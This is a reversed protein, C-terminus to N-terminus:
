GPPVGVAQTPGVGRISIDLKYSNDKKNVVIAPFSTLVKGQSPCVAGVDEAAPHPNPDASGEGADINRGM